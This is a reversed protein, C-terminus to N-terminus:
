APDGGNTRDVRSLVAPEKGNVAYEILEGTSADFRARASWFRRWRPMVLTASLEGDRGAGDKALEFKSAELAGRGTTGIALFDLAEGRSTIFGAADFVMGQMWRSGRLPHSRTVAENMFTGALDIKRGALRATIDTGDAPIRCTWEETLLKPGSRLTETRLVARTWPDTYTITRVGEAELRSSDVEVAVERDFAGGTGDLYHRVPEDPVVFDRLEIRARREPEHVVRGDQVVLAIDAVADISELPDSNLLLLDAAAGEDIRGRGTLGLLDAANRTAADIAASPPLGADVLLGLEDHLSGASMAGVMADTGAVIKVGAEHARRLNEGAVESYPRGTRDRVLQEIALTSVLPAGAAAWRQLFGDEDDVPSEIVGHEISDIGLGLLLEVDDQYHTHASAKLGLAHAEHIAGRAAGTALKNLRDGFEAYVGGQFVIKILDVGSAHLRRVAAKAQAEDDVARVMHRQLWPADRCVTIEPHGGPATIAPGAVIMRPGAVHSAEVRAKLRTIQALPDAMARVSTIGSHLLERLTAAHQRERLWASLGGRVGLFDFHLHADIMGPMVTRGDGDITRTADGVELRGPSIRSIRGHAILLDARQPSRGEGLFLMADRILLGGDDLPTM